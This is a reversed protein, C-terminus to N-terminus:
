HGGALLKKMSDITDESTRVKSIVARVGAHRRILDSAATSHGKPNSGEKAVHRGYSRSLKGTYAVELAFAFHQSLMEHALQGITWNQYREPCEIVRPQRGGNSTLKSGHEEIDIVNSM